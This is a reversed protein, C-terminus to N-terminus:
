KLQTNKFATLYAVRDKDSPHSSIPRNPWYTALHNFYSIGGDPGVSRAAFLDAKKERSRSYYNFVHYHFLASLFLQTFCSHTIYSNIAKIKNLLIAYQSDSSLKKSTTTIVKNAIVDYIQLLGWVICPSIIHILSNKLYDREKIHGIEHAITFQLEQDSAHLFADQSNSPQKDKIIPNIAIHNQGWGLQDQGEIFHINIQDNTIGTKLMTGQILQKIHEKELSNKIIEDLNKFNNEHLSDGENNRIYIVINKLARYFFPGKAILQCLVMQLAANKPVCSKAYDILPTFSVYANHVIQSIKSPRIAFPESPSMAAAKTGIMLFLFVLVIKKM